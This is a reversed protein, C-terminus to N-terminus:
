TWRNLHCGWKYKQLTLANVEWKNCQLKWAKGLQQHIKVITSNEIVHGKQSFQHIQSRSKFQTTTTAQAVRCWRLSALPLPSKLLPVWHHCEVRLLTHLQRGESCSQAAREDKWKKQRCSTWSINKNKLLDAPKTRIKTDQCSFKYREWSCTQRVASHMNSGPHFCITHLKPSVRLNARMIICSGLCPFLNLAAQFLSRNYFFIQLVLVLCCCKKKCIPAGHRRVYM